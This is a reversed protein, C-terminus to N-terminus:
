KQKKPKPKEEEKEDRRKALILFLLLLLLALIALIILILNNDEPPFDDDIEITLETTSITENDYATVKITYNGPETWNHTINFKIGSPLFDSEETTGDGFDVIYKIKDNDDTSRGTYTHPPFIM